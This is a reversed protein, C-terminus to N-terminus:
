NYESRTAFLSSALKNYRLSVEFGGQYRSASRYGSINVDYAVGFAYDGAEYLIAPILADKTRYFLGIGFANQTKQGTVKTGTALRIKLYSGMYLQYAGNLSYDQPINNDKTGQRQVIFTPTITYRTDEFDFNSTFSGVWRIPLRYTSGPSMEQKPRNVHFAAIGIRFRTFDDHDQDIKVTSYEYALGVGFDTTTFSRYNFREGNDADDVFENGDFQSAWKLKSYSAYTGVAGGSIGASLVSNKSLKVIGSVNILANTRTFKATGAVDQFLVLGVGLFSKRKRHKFLGADVNLNMTQFAKGMAQWQNRYNINSRFYGNFFGTNAPNILLPTEDVMSFHIDQAKLNTTLTGFVFVLILTYIHKM